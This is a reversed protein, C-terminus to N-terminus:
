FQRLKFVFIIRRPLIFGIKTQLFHQVDMQAVVTNKSKARVVLKLLKYKRVMDGEQNQNHGADIKHVKRCGTRHITGFLNTNPFNHAGRPPHQDNLKNTLRHQHSGHRHEQGNDNNFRKHGFEPVQASQINRKIIQFIGKGLKVSGKPPIKKIPPKGRM